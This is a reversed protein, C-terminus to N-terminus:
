GKQRQKRKYAMVKSMDGTKMAEDRLRDLTNDVTGSVRGTGSMKKEPPAKAKRPSVKLQAEMKAVAFAFQIPDEIEALRKAHDPHRGLAYVVHAPNEAGSIIIGQKTTDMMDSVVSEADDFDRVRM